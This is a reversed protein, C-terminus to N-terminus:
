LKSIKKTGIKEGLKVVTEINKHSSDLINKNINITNEKFLLVITSGGFKFYGKEEGKKFNYVEHHNIIKGVMLAGVEVQIVDGYNETHLVTWERSNQKYINYNELAIPRVTHLIGKIYINKPKTGNDIYSYRHYDDVCLRFILAYGNLYENSISDNILDNVKYYTNKILFKSNEDIKYVSLKSDCPSILGNKDINRTGQKIKRIFFDNFSRYNEEEYDEMNINNKIIFKKIFFKSFYSSLFWGAIKSFIRLTLLKLILRGLFTKYLFLTTKDEKNNKDITIKAM